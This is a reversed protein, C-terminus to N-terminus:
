SAITYKVTVVDHTMDSLASAQPTSNIQADRRAELRTVQVGPQLVMACRGQRAQGQNSTASSRKVGLNAEYSAQKAEPHLEKLLSSFSLM